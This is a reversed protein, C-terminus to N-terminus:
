ATKKRRRVIAAAGAALGAGLMTTPEPVASANEGSNVLLLNGAPSEAVLPLLSIVDSPIPRDSEAVEAALFAALSQPTFSLPPRPDPNNNVLSTFTIQGGNAFLSQVFPALLPPPTPIDAATFTLTTNPPPFDGDGEYDIGPTGNVVNNLAALYPAVLSQYSTPILGTVVQIDTAYTPLDDLTYERSLFPSTVSATLLDYGFLGTGTATKNYTFTSSAIPNIPNSGFVSITSSYFATQASAPSMGGAIAFSAVMGTTLAMSKQLYRQITM